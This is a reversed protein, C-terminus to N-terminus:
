KKKLCFVAYSIRRLRTPESIHILSLEHFGRASRKGVDATNGRDGCCPDKCLQTVDPADGILRGKARERASSGDRGRRALGIPPSQVAAPVALQVSGYVGDGEGLDTVVRTCTFVEVPFTFGALAALVRHSAQLPMKGADNVPPEDRGFASEKSM